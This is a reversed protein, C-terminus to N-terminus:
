SVHTVIYMCVEPTLSPFSHQVDGFHEWSWWVGAWWYGLGYDRIRDLIMEALAQGSTGGM